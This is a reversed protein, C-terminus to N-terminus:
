EEKKLEEIAEYVEKAEELIEADEDASINEKIGYFDKHRNVCDVCAKNIDLFFQEDTVINSFLWVMSAYNGLWVENKEKLAIEILRGINLHKGVRHTVQSNIDFIKIHTSENRYVFNGCRYENKALKIGNETQKM